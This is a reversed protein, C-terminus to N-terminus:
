QGSMFESIAPLRSTSNGRCSTLSCKLSESASRTSARARLEHRRLRAAREHSDRVLARKVANILKEKPARKELFDEAGGRMARVTSPIDGHGTLFLIPLPNCGQALTSQLDFGNMEPMQLDALVCGPADPERRSLFESASLFTKVSFGSSRLLRSIAALFSADDDVVHVVPESVKMGHHGGGRDAAHISLIGWRRGQERGVATGRARGIITRSIPLGMGMGSPKTTFFPDFIHALQDAPIGCGTDSVIIEITQSGNLHATV